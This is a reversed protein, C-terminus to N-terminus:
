RGKLKKKATVTIPKNKVDFIALRFVETPDVEFLEGMLRFDKLTLTDGNYVRKRLTSYNAKMDVRVVSLPIINFVEKLSNIRKTEILSKIANYRQDKLIEFKVSRFNIISSLFM